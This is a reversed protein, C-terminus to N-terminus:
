LLSTDLVAHTHIHSHSLSSHLTLTFTHLLVRYLFSVHLQKNTSFIIMIHTRTCYKKKKNEVMLDCIYKVCMHALGAVDANRAKEMTISGCSKHRANASYRHRTCEDICIRTHTYTHTHIHAPVYTLVLLQWVYSVCV